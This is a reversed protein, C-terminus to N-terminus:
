AVAGALSRNFLVVRDPHDTYVGDVDLESMERIDELENVPYVYVQYGLQHAKDVLERKVMALSFNISNAKLKEASKFLGLPPADVLMGIKAEPLTERLKLLQKHDFSSFWIDKLQLTGASEKIARKVVKLVPKVTNPGKLELHLQRGQRILPLGLLEKLTPIRAGGKTVLGRVMGATAKRLLGRGNITTDELRPGHILFLEGGDDDTVYWVDTEIGDAGLYFASEFAAITNESRCASGRHGIVQLMKM